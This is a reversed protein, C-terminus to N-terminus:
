MFFISLLAYKCVLVFSLNLWVSLLLRDKESDVVDAYAALEVDAQQMTAVAIVRRGASSSPMGEVAAAADSPVPDADDGLTSDSQAPEISADKSNSTLSGSDIDFSQAPFVHRLEAFHVFQSLVV